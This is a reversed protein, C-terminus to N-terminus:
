AEMTLDFAPPERGTRTFKEYGGAFGYTAVEILAPVAPAANTGYIQLARAADGALCPTELQHVLRPLLEPIDKWFKGSWMEAGLFEGGKTRLFYTIFAARAQSSEPLVLGLACAALASPSTSGSDDCARAAKIVYKRRVFPPSNRPASIHLPFNQFSM